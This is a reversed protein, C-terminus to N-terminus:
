CAEYRTEPNVALVEVRSLCAAEAPTLRASFGHLVMDYPYLMKRGWWERGRGRETKRRGGAVM